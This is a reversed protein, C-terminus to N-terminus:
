EMAKGPALSCVSGAYKRNNSNGKSDTARDLFLYCAAM